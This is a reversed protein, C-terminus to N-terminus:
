HAPSTQNIIEHWGIATLYCERYLSLLWEKKDPEELIKLLLAYAVGEATDPVDPLM